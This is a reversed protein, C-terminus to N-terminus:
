RMYQKSYHLTYKISECLLLISNNGSFVVTDSLVAPKAVISSQMAGGAATATNASFETNNVAMTGAPGYRIAGGFNATNNDFTCGNIFTNGVSNVAGGLGKIASNNSFTTSIFTSNCGQRVFVAGGISSKGGNATNDTFQSNAITINGSDARIAGGSSQATNHNFTTNTITCQKTDLIMAGDEVGVQSLFVIARGANFTTLDSTHLMSFFELVIKGLHKRCTRIDIAIFLLVHTGATNSEFTCGSIRLSSDDSATVAGGGASSASNNLFQCQLQVLVCYLVTLVDHHSGLSSYTFRQIIDEQM